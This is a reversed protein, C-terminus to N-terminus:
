KQKETKKISTKSLPFLQIALTYVRDASERNEMNKCLKRRFDKIQEIAVPLDAERMPFTITTLNRASFPETDLSEEAKKLFGRVFARSTESSATNNVTLQKKSRVWKGEKKVLTGTQVLDRWAAMAQVRTIRLRYALDKGSPSFGPLHVLSLIAYHVWSAIRAFDEEKLDTYQSEGRDGSRMQNRLVGSKAVLASLRASPARKGALVLSLLSHSVGLSRAYSRLSYGPHRLCRDQYEKTMCILVQESTM